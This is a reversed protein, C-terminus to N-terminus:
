DGQKRLTKEELEGLPNITYEAEWAVRKDLIEENGHQEDFYELAYFWAWEKHLIVRLDDFPHTESLQLVTKYLSPERLKVESTDMPIATLTDDDYRASINTVACVDKELRITLIYNPQNGEAPCLHNSQISECEGRGDFTYECSILEAEDAYELCIEKLDELYNEESVPINVSKSWDLPHYPRGEMKDLEYFMYAIFLVAGIILLCAGITLLKKTKLM